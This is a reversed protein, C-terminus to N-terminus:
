REPRTKTNRSFNRAACYLVIYILGAAYFGWRVLEWRHEESWELYSFGLLLGLALALGRAQRSPFAVHAIGTFLLLFILPELCERNTRYWDLVSDM